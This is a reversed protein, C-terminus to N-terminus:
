DWERFMAVEDFIDPGYDDEVETIYDLHAECFYKLAADAGKEKAIRKTETTIYHNEGYAAIALNIISIYM